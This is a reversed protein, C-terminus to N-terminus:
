VIEVSRIRALTRHAAVSGCDAMAGAEAAERELHRRARRLLLRRQARVARRVGREQRNPQLRIEAETVKTKHALDAAAVDPPNVEAAEAAPRLFPPEIRHLHHIIVHQRQLLLRLPRLSFPFDHAHQVVRKQRSEEGFELSRMEGADDHLVAGAAVQMREPVFLRM